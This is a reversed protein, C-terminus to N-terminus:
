HKAVGAAQAASESGLLATAYAGPNQEAAPVLKVTNTVPTGPGHYDAKHDRDSGPFYYAAFTKIKDKDPYLVSASGGYDGFEGANRPGFWVAGDRTVALKPVDTREPLPYRTFENTKQDFKVVYNDM